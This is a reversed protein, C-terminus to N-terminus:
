GVGVSGSWGGPLCNVDIGAIGAIVSASTEATTDSLLFVSRVRWEGTYSEGNNLLFYYKDSAPIGEVGNASFGVRLPVNSGSLTNIVTVFKTIYPFVVELSSATNDPATLSSSAYPIGSRQYAGASNLGSKLTTTGTM